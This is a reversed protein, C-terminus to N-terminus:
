SEVSAIPTELSGYGILKYGLARIRGDSYSADVRDLM